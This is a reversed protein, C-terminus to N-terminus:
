NWKGWEKFLQILKDNFIFDRTPDIVYVDNDPMFDPITLNFVGLLAVATEELVGNFKHLTVSFEDRLRQYDEQENLFSSEINNARSSHEMVSKGGSSPSFNAARSDLGDDDSFMDRKHGFYSLM